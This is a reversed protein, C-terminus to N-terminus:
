GSLFVDDPAPKYVAEVADRTASTEQEGTM